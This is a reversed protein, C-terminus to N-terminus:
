AKHGGIQNNREITTAGKILNTGILITNKGYKNKLKLITNQVKREEQELHKEQSKEKDYKENNTFLDLQKYINQTKINEEKELNCVTINIRRTLLKKNIINELLELVKEKIIKTSSTKHDLHITGHAHKPVERGYYDITIEGDYEERIKSNELNSIDYGITLVIQDTLFHKEVMDLILLETM